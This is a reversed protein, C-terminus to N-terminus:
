NETKEFTLFYTEGPKFFESAAVESDINIKLEGYPTAKTFDANEKTDTSYVASLNAQKQTGYDVVNNCRFKAKVTDM